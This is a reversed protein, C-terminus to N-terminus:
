VNALVRRGIGLAESWFSTSTHALSVVQEVATIYHEIQEDSVVLPPAIKLTLFNNGCIQSLIGHDKFLRMVVVQGFMAPHIKSFTEFPIRLLYSRPKRFEIANLLGLGRVEAVMEYKGLRETLTRRLYEGLSAARAGLKEDELIDLTTLGARMALSNESYTTTHIFARRLSSYISNCIADSMLVASCPILGGSMAKALVVMDPEVGFHHAALFDGTRYFGTQVEDLVFLTGYRRCLAQAKILYDPAPVRVGGEGQIPELVFAAFPKAALKNELAEIDDFLVSETEPLLPGFGAKWFEDSMLSLAGCTLGHFGDAAYLIGSRETHARAFKIVTEVGESGSSAFFVKTFRGGARACLKEALEGALDSVHTQLMAPGSRDLEEKLAAILRPHNHGINHVCYGSNFDIIAKGDSTHLEVGHCHVYNVNMELVDLLHVWQPNVYREYSNDNRVSQLM